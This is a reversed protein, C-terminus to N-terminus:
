KYPLYNGFENRSYLVRLKPYTADRHRFILGKKIWGMLWQKQEKSIQGIDTVDNTQLFTWLEKENMDKFNYKNGPFMENLLEKFKM